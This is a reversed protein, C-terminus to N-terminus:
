RGGGLRAAAARQQEAEETRGQREYVQALTAHALAQLPPAQVNVLGFSALQEAEPLDDPDGRDLLVQALFLSADPSDPNADLAARLVPALEEAPAGAAALLRARSLQALYHRPQRRTEAEYAALADDLRGLMELAQGRQFQLNPLEPAGEAARDFAALADAASGEQMAAVGEGYHLKPANPDTAFGENLVNRADSWRGDRMLVDALEWRLDVDAPQLALIETMLTAASELNGTARYGRALERGALAHGPDIELAREFAATAEDYRRNGALVLGRFHQAGAFEPDAVIQEDIIGLAAETDGLEWAGLARMMAAYVDIKDKPDALEAGDAAGGVGLYGLSRLAAFRDPDAADADVGIAGSESNDVWEDLADRLDDAREPRDDVLNDEEAPDRRIDYLEERPAAIFKEEDTSMARLEHWGFYLRPVLTESYVPVMDISEGQLASVLSRGEIDNGSDLRWLEAVTPFVDVLAVTTEVVIGRPPAQSGPEADVAGAPRIILPVRLTPEYLFFGHAPEGHEGLSEGHDSTLVVTTNSWAGLEELRARLRAVLADSYAVEGDYPTAAYRSGFPEPAAYPAHPDFLHIWAFWPEDGAGELWGLASEITAAGNREAESPGAPAEGPAVPPGEYVDFGQSLGWRADLVFASVFAGTRYGASRFAEAMTHAAPSLVGAANDRLGHRPPSAGTLITAHAPLTTPASTLARAFRVGEAALRDIEPTEVADNGYVGLRDARLTDITILLLNADAGGSVGNGGCAGTFLLAGLAIFVIQSRERHFSMAGTYSNGSDALM